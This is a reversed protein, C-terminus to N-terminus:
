KSIYGRKQVNLKESHFSMKDKITKQSSLSTESPKTKNQKKLFSPPLFHFLKDIVMHDTLPLIFICEPPKMGFCARTLLQVEIGIMSGETIPSM